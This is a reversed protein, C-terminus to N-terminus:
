DEERLAAIRAAEIRAAVRRDQWESGLLSLRWVIPCLAVAAVLVVFGRSDEGVATLIFLAIFYGVMLGFLVSKGFIELRWQSPFAVGIFCIAAIASLTYSFGDVFADPFFESIAPVGFRAGSFGAIFFLADIVPYMIRKLNRYKWEAPPIAGPAWISALLLKHM